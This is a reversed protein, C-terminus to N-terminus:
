ILKVSVFNRLTKEIRIFGFGRIPNVYTIEGAKKQTSVTPILEETFARLSHALRQLLTTRNLRELLIRELEIFITKAKDRDWLCECIKQCYKDMDRGVIIPM